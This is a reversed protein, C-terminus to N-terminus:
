VIIITIIHYLFRVTRLETEIEWLSKSSTMWYAVVQGHENMMSYMAEFMRQHGSFPVKAVKFTHDGCLITGTLSMLSRTKFEHSENMKRVFALKLAYVTPIQGRYGMKDDYAGFPEIKRDPDAPLGLNRLTEDKKRQSVQFEAYSQVQRWYRRHSLESIMRRLDSFSQNKVVQRSVLDVLPQDLAIKRFVM